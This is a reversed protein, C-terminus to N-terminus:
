TCAFRIFRSGVFKFIEFKASLFLKHYYEYIECIIRPLLICTEPTVFILLNSLINIYIHNSFINIPNMELLEHSIFFGFTLQRISLFTFCNRMCTIFAFSDVTYISRLFACFIKRFLESFRRFHVPILHSVHIM